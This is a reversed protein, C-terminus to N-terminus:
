EYFITKYIYIIDRFIFLNTYQRYPYYFKVNRTDRRQRRLVSRKYLIESKREDSSRKNPRVHCHVGPCAPLDVKM